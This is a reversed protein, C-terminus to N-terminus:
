NDPLLDLAEWGGVPDGKPNQVPDMVTGIIDGCLQEDEEGMVPGTNAELLGALMHSMDLRWHRLLVSVLLLATAEHAPARSRPLEALNSCSGIYVCAKLGGDITKEFMFDAGLM